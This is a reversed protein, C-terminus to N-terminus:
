PADSDSGEVPEFMKQEIREPIQLVAIHTEGGSFDIVGIFLNPDDHLVEPIRAITSETVDKAFVPQDSSDFLQCVLLALPAQSRKTKDLFNPIDSKRYCMDLLLVEGFQDVELVNHTPTVDGARMHSTEFLQKRSERDMPKLHHAMFAPTTLVYDTQNFRESFEDFFAFPFMRDMHEKKIPNPM